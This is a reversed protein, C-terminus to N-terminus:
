HTNLNKMALLLLKPNKVEKQNSPVENKSTEQKTSPSAKVLKCLIGGRQLTSHM